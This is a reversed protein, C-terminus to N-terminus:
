SKKTTPKAASKQPTTQKSKKVAQPKAVLLPGKTKKDAAFTGEPGILKVPQFGATQCAKWIDASKVQKKKQPTVIALNAKVDTSISKVGKLVIVKRVIKKACHGCHMKEVYVATQEPALKLAPEKKISKKTADVKATAQPKATIQTAAIALPSSALTAAFVCLTSIKITNLM